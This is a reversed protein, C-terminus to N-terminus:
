KYTSIHILLEEIDEPEEKCGSIIWERILAYGGNYEYIRMYENQRETYHVDYNEKSLYSLLDMNFVRQIFDSDAVYKFIVYAMEQESKLFRLFRHIGSEDYEGEVTLMEEAADFLDQEIDEVVDFQSGYHKYFTSRNIGAKECLESVTIKAINKEYLLRIMANKLLMKTIRVRQNEM